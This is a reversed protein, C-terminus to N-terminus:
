KPSDDAAEAEIPETIEVVDTGYGNFVLFTRGEYQYRYVVLKAKPTGPLRKCHSSFIEEHTVPQMFLSAICIGATVLLLVVVAYHTIKDM